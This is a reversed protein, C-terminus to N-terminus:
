KSDIYEASQEIKMGRLKGLIEQLLKERDRVNRREDGCGYLIARFERGRQRM